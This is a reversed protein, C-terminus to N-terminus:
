GVRRCTGGVGCDWVATRYFALFIVMRELRQRYSLLFDVDIAARFQPDVARRNIQIDFAQRVAIEVV